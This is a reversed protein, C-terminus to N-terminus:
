QVDSQLHNAVKHVGHSPLPFVYFLPTNRKGFYGSICPTHRSFAAM